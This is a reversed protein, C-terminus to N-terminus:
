DREELAIARTWTATVRHLRLPLGIFFVRPKTIQHLGTLMDIMAIGSLMLRGDSDEKGLPTGPASMRVFEMGVMKVKAGIMWEVADSSIHPWQGRPQEAGRLLVIDGSKVGARRLDAGTIPAGAPKHALDCVVAEGIFYELPMDAMDLGNDDYKYFGEAHTGTHTQGQVLHMRANYAFFERVEVPRGYPGEGHLYRGDTKWEGPLVECSLDIIRYKSLDIM